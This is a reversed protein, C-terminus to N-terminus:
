LTRLSKAVKPKSFGAAVEVLVNRPEIVEGKRIVAQCRGPSRKIWTTVEM